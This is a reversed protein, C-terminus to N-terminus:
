ALLGHRLIRNGFHLLELGDRRLVRSRIVSIFCLKIALCVGQSFSVGIDPECMFRFKGM